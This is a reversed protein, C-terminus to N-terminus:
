VDLEIIKASLRGNKAVLRAVSVPKGFRRHGASGPNVFLVGEKEDIFPRHSHGFIVADFGAAAPDLDLRQLDHLVYFQRGGAEVVATESLRERLPGFDMNGRVAHVPAIRELQAIVEPVDIDGAHIIFEVGDFADAVEPRLLGHTDSILGIRLAAAPSKDETMRAHRPPLHVARLRDAHPFAESRIDIQFM